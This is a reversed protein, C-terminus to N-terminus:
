KKRGQKLKMLERSIRRVLVDNTNAKMLLRRRERYDGSSVELTRAQECLAEARGELLVVYDGAVSVRLYCRTKTDLLLTEDIAAPRDLGLKDRVWVLALRQAETTRFRIWM